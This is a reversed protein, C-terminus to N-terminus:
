ACYRRYMAELSDAGNEVSRVRSPCQNSTGAFDGKLSIMLEMKEHLDDIDGARFLLGNEGDRISEPIAGINSVV